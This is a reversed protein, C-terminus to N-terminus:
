KKGKMQNYKNKIANEISSPTFKKGLKKLDRYWYPDVSPAINAEINPTEAKTKATTATTLGETSRLNVIEQNLKELQVVLNKQQQANLKTNELIYAIETATKITDAETKLTAATTGTTTAKKLDIDAENMSLSQAGALASGISNGVKATSVQGMAGTPTGAGGQTYALMPNLGASKMDKVATQYQSDRMREQFDMQIKAQEASAANSAQAIDWSKQNTQQQGVFGLVGGIAKGFDIPM